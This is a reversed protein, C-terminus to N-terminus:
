ECGARRLRWQFDHSKAGSSLLPVFHGAGSHFAGTRAPTFRLSGPEGCWVLLAEKHQPRVFIYVSCLLFFTTRKLIFVFLLTVALPPHLRRCATWTFPATVVLLWQLFQLFVPSPLKGHCNFTAM